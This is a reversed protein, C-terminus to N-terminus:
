MISINLVITKYKEKLGVDTLKWLCFQLSKYENWNIFM